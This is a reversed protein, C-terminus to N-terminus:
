CAHQPRPPCSHLHASCSWRRRMGSHKRSGEREVRTEGSITGIKGTLFVQCPPDGSGEGFIRCSGLVGEEGGHTPHLSRIFNSFVWTMMLTSPAAPRIFFDFSILLSGLSGRHSSLMQPPHLSLIFSVHTPLTPLSSGPSLITPVLHSNRSPIVQWTGFM